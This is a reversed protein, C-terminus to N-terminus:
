RLEILENFMKEEMEMSWKLQWTGKHRVELTKAMISNYKKNIMGKIRVEELLYRALVARDLNPVLYFGEEGPMTLVFTREAGIIPDMMDKPCGKGYAACHYGQVTGVLTDAGAWTPISFITLAILLGILKIHM